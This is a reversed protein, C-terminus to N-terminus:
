PAFRGTLLGVIAGLGTKLAWDCIRLAREELASVPVTFLLPYLITLLVFSVLTIGSVM